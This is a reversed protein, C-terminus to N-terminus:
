GEVFTRLDIGAIQTWGANYNSTAFFPDDQPFTELGAHTLQLRTKEGEAFLEWTVTSEGPYGAYYWTHVLKQREIVEKVECHHLYLKGDDQCTFSFQFGVEPEFGSLDFYWQKLKEINTLASWVKEIPANYTQQMVYPEREMAYLNKM